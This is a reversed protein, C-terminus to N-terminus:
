LPDAPDLLALANISQTPSQSVSCIHDGLSQLGYYSYRKSAIVMSVWPMLCVIAGEILWCLLEKNNMLQSFTNHM